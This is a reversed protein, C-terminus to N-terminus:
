RGHWRRDGCLFVVGPTSFPFSNARSSDATTAYDPAPSRTAGDTYHVTPKLNDRSVDYETVSIRDKEDSNGM